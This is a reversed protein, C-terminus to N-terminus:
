DRYNSLEPFYSRYIGRDRTLIADCQTTAFGGIYFDSLFHERSDLVTGCHPCARKTRRNLYILWRRAAEMASDMDLERIRIKHETLFSTMLEQDGLFQPLLEAAVVCPALLEEHKSIALYLREQDKRFEDKLIDLLITTDVCVKV